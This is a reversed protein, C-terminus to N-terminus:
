PRWAIVNPDSNLLWLRTSDRRCPKDAPSNCCDELPHLARPVGASECASFSSCSGKQWDVCGVVWASSAKSLVWCCVFLPWETWMYGEWLDVRAWVIVSKSTTKCASYTLEKATPNETSVMMSDIMAYVNMYYWNLCHVHQQKMLIYFVVFSALSSGSHFGHCKNFPFCINAFWLSASMMQNVAIDWNPEEWVQWM